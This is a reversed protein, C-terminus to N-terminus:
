CATGYFIKPLHEYKSVNGAKLIEKQSWRNVNMVYASM